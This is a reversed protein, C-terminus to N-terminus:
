HPWATAATAPTACSRAGNSPTSGGMADALDALGDEHFAGTLAVGGLVAVGAAITPPVIEMLGAAVGGVVAGILAGVVPFWPVATSLDPAARLRIPVRTLFQVAAAFGTM